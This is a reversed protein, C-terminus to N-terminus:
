VQCLSGERHSATVVIAHFVALALSVWFGQGTLDIAAIMLLPYAAAPRTAYPLCPALSTWVKALFIGYKILMIVAERSVLPRRGSGHLSPSPLLLQLNRPSVLDAAKEPPRRQLLSTETKAPSSLRRGITDIPSLPPSLHGSGEVAPAQYQSSTQTKESHKRSLPPPSRQGNSGSRPGHTGFWGEGDVGPHSGARAKSGINKLGQVVEQSSPRDGPELSLLRSLSSSLVEPLDFQRRRDDDIGAWTAIEDRLKDIDETTEDFPNANSYPLRRFCLLYLILGLSFIDSKPTFNGLRGTSSDRKLVEPACYSVTGTGGTSRRAVHEGTTEGFDSVLCRLKGSVEHLLCNSPKLDRHIFGSRHLYHLGNAIDKFFAFVQEPDLQRAM